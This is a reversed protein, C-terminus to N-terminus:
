TTRYFLLVLATFALRRICPYPYVQLHVTISIIPTAPLSVAYAEAQVQLIHDRLENDDQIGTQEKFFVRQEEDLNYISPDLPFAAM